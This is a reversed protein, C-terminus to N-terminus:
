VMICIAQLGITPSEWTFHLYDPPNNYLGSALVVVVHLM